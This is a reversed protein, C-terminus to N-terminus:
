CCVPQSCPSPTVQGRGVGCAEAAEDTFPVQRRFGSRRRPSTGPVFCPVAPLLTGVMSGGARPARDEASADSRLDPVPESGKRSHIGGRPGRTTDPGECEAGWPVAPPSPPCEGSLPRRQGRCGRRHGPGLCVRGVAAEARVASPPPEKAPNTARHPRVSGSKSEFLCMRASTIIVCVLSAFCSDPCHPRLPSRQGARAQRTFPPIRSTQSSSPWAVHQAM